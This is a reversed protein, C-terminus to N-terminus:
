GARRELYVTRDQLVWPVRHDRLVRSDRPGPPVLSGPRVRPVRLEQLGQPVM